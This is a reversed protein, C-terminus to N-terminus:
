VNVVKGGAKEIKSRATATTSIKVILPIKIEGEGMIKVGQRKLQKEPALGEKILIEMTVESGSKLNALRSLPLTVPKAGRKANGWGRRLPLKKYLPLTGGIFGLAVKGRAKAGKTGRGSTKGRGSGIGRGLRKKTKSTTKLM